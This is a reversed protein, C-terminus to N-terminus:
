SGRVSLQDAAAAGSTPPKPWTEAYSGAASRITSTPPQAPFLSSVPLAM